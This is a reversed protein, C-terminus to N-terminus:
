AIFFSVQILEECFLCSLQALLSELFGIDLTLQIKSQKDGFTLNTLAMATYRRLTLCNANIWKEDIKVSDCKLKTQKLQEYSTLLFGHYRHETFLLESIAEIGGLRCILNRYHEDFSIKMLNCIADLPHEVITLDILDIPRFGNVPSSSHLNLTNYNENQQKNLQLKHLDSHFYRLQNLLENVKQEEPEGDRKLLEDLVDIAYKRTQLFLEDEKPDEEECCDSNFHMLRIVIPMLGRLSVASNSQILDLLREALKFRGAGDTRALSALLSELHNTLQDVAINGNEDFLRSMLDGGAEPDLQNSDLQDEDLDCYVRVSNFEIFNNASKKKTVEEDTQCKPPDNQEERHGERVSKSSEDDSANFENVMRSKLKVRVTSHDSGGDEDDDDNLHVLFRVFCTLSIFFFLLLDVITNFSEM